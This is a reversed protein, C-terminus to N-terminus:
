VHARGIQVNSSPSYVRAQNFKLPPSVRILGVIIDSQTADAISQFIADTEHTAPDVAVGLKEPLVIVRAGQGALSVAQDAYERFLRDAEPGERPFLNRPLDSAALAIRVTTVDVPVSQLRWLGFIMVAIVSAFVCAAIRRPKTTSNQDLLMAVTAPVLFVCFTIGWVGTLSALQVLPLFDMQSYALNGFTSHPSRIQTLYEYGGMAAPVALAARWPARRRMFVRALLVTVGFACAPAALISVAVAIPMAGTPGMRPDGPIVLINRLYRWMNLSGLFWSLAAVSFAPFWGIRPAILLVPLPAFWLAWWRPEIGTGVYVLVTTLLLAAAADRATKIRDPNSAM